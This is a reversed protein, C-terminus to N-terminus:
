DFSYPVTQGKIAAKLLRQTILDPYRRNPATSHAYDRVALGFHGPADAGPIEAIYEGSGLLKIVSLSLDPFRLPDAAKEKILFEDLAKSDPDDPLRAGHDKALEVIRDWRKPVRVVRRISPFKKSELYRATVGNAAIMFDEIIDKARNRKEEELGSIQDGDFIPRAEITELSLSGHIHRFNRMKQATGDQMRLNADLAPVATVAEPATKEGELWAAVSNYALKARNRVLARYVASALLTGDAGITMEVVVALRDENLNLSTLQTSLKVPLMPFIEAATYVSATNRSAYEDISTGAKVLSDVDAVAVLIKVTDGPLSEAVTLQDLDLSDDNDISAWLLGRLDHISDDNAAGAPAQLRDLEALEAAPFDPLLGHELMARRAINRLLARNSQENVQFNNM